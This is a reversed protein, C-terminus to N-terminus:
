KRLKFRKKNIRPLRRYHATSMPAIQAQVTRFLLAGVIHKNRSVTADVHGGFKDGALTIPGRRALVM